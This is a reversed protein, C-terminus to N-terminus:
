EEAVAGAVGREVAASARREAWFSVIPITAFLATTITFSPSWRHRRALVAILVLLGMFLYGHVMDVVTIFSANRNWWSGDDTTLQGIWATIVFILNLGVIWALVRYATATRSM